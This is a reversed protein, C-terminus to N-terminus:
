PTASRRAAIVAKRSMRLVPARSAGSPAMMAFLPPATEATQAADPTQEPAVATALADVPATLYQALAELSRSPADGLQRLAEQLVPLLIPIWQNTKGQPLGFLRGHMFQLPHTKLYVLIFLLRDEARPLPCTAYTTYRRGGRPQGDFRWHAMRAQFAAEFPGVVVAFEESTLSTLELVEMPRDAVDGFRLGAVIKGKARPCVPPRQVRDSSASCAGCGGKEGASPYVM